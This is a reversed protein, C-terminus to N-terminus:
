TTVYPEGFIVSAWRVIRNFANKKSQSFLGNPTWVLMMPDKEALTQLTKTMPETMLLSAIASADWFKM